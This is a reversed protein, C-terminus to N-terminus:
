KKGRLKRIRLIKFIEWCRKQWRAKLKKDKEGHLMKAKTLQSEAQWLGWFSKKHVEKKEKVIAKKEDVKAASELRQNIIRVLGPDGAMADEMDKKSVIKYSIGKPPKYM